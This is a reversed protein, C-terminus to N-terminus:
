ISPRDIKTKFRRKQMKSQIVNMTVVRKTGSSDNLERVVTEMRKIGVLGLNYMEEDIYKKQLWKYCTPVVDLGLLTQTM